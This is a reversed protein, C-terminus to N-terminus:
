FDQSQMLHGVEEKLQTERKSPLWIRGEYYNNTMSLKNMNNYLLLQKLILIEFIEIQSLEYANNRNTFKDLQNETDIKKKSFLSSFEANSKLNNNITAKLDFEKFDITFIQANNGQILKVIKNEM